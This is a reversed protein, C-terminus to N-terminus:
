YRRRRTVPTPSIVAIAREPLDPWLHLAAARAEERNPADFVDLEAKYDGTVPDIMHITFPRMM